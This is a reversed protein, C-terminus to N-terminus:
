RRPRNGRSRRPAGTPPVGPAVYYHIATKGDPAHAWPESDIRWWGRQEYFRIATTSTEVVDLAPHRASKVAAACAAELLM